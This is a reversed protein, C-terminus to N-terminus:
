IGVLGGVVLETIRIHPGGCNNPMGQGSKGCMGPWEMSLDSGVMDINHLTELTMGNLSVDRVHEALAGDRIMWGEGVSCTFQGKECMVYGSQGGKVYLGLDIGAIMQELGIGGEAPEIFTNSMRVQPRCGQDQARASGTPAVGFRAATAMSHMFGVLVGHEILPRRTALTGESDYKYSGWSNGHDSEDTITVLDSAIAQGLKGEVISEGALVLDAEANHGIAEHTFLGTVSPHFVVPMKGSPPPGADLLSVAIQAAKLSLDAPAADRVLEYGCRAAKREGWRQRVGDRQVTIVASLWTRPVVSEILTGRTNATWTRSASDSYNVITNAAWESAHDLMAKEFARADAMKQSIPVSRPDLEPELVESDEVPPVHALESLDCPLKESARAMALAADLAASAGDRTCDESTAFGWAGAKLVRVGLRRRSSQSLKDARGDQLTIATSDGAGARADAFDAGCRKAEDCVWQVLDRM